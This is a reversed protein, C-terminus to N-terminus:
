KLKKKLKDMNEKTEADQVTVNIDQELNKQERKDIKNWEEFKEYFKGNTVIYIDEVAPINGVGKLIYELIPKGNIDLLAKPMSRTLPYLRTGYGAALILVDM